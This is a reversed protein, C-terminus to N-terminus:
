DPLADLGGDVSSADIPPAADIPPPLLCQNGVWEVSQCTLRGNCSPSTNCCAQQWGGCAKCNGTSWEGNVFMVEHYGVCATAPDECNGGACCPEDAKGCEVCIDFLSGVGRTDCAQTPCCEQGMPTEGMGQLKICGVTAMLVIVM